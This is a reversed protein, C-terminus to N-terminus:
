GAPGIRVVPVPCRAAKASRRLGTAHSM